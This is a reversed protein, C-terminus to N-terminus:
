ERDFRWWKWTGGPVLSCLMLSIISFVSGVNRLLFIFSILVTARREIADAEANAGDERPDTFHLYRITLM